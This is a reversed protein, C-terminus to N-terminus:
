LLHVVQSCRPMGTSTIGVPHPAYERGCLGPTVSPVATSPSLFQAFPKERHLTNKLM